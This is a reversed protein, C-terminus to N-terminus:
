KAHQNIVQMVKDCIVPDLGNKAARDPHFDRSLKRILEKVSVNCKDRGMLMNNVRTNLSEIEKDKDELDQRLKRVDPKPGTSKSSKELLKEAKVAMQDVTPLPPTPFGLARALTQIQGQVRADRERAEERMRAMECRLAQMQATSEMKLADMQTQLSHVQSALEENRTMLRQESRVVIQMESAREELEIRLSASTDVASSQGESRGRKASQMHLSCEAAAVREERIRPDDEAKKKVSDTGTCVMLHDHCRNSKNNKVNQEPMEVVDACYPCGFRAYLVTKTGRTKPVVDRLTFDGWKEPRVM